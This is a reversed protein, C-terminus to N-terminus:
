SAPPAAPGVTSQPVSLPISRQYRRVGSGAAHIPPATAATRGVTDDAPLRKSSTAVCVSVPAEDVLQRVVSGQVLRQWRNKEHTGVVLLDARVQKAFSTLVEAPDGLAVHLKTQRMLPEGALATQAWEMVRRECQALQGM